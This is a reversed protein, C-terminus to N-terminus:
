PSSMAGIISQWPVLKFNNKSDGNNADQTVFAGQPFAEGLPVGTVDIGDTHTVEDIGNGAVIEFTMVYDNDRARQYVVYEDEGQSSAILYGEGGRGYYIALGEVEVELPTDSDVTDVLTGEPKATPEAGFKWIGRTEESLYLQALGDDVVCGEVKSEVKLTRVWRVDVKGGGSGFLEWQDVNGSKDTVFVYFKDDVSSHYMCLGYDETHVGRATVDELLRTAPNVRYISVGEQTRNSAAVLATPQGDLPFDYRLDVGNIDGDPLHQLQRGTLDYVVLGADKTTGIITSLSPDTPHVWIALDDADGGAPVPATEVTATVARVGTPAESIATVTVTDSRQEEGDSVTLNLRYEGGVGPVFSASVTDPSDLVVTSGEPEAEVSWRYSLTDGDPDSSGEGDLVVTEGVRVTQPQAKAEAVPTRNEAEPDVTITVDDHASHEGNDATLRLIYVGATSFSATTNVANVAGFTVVGPGQQKSWTVTLRSQQLNGDDVTGDLETLESIAITQEEGAEVVLTSNSANQNTNCAILAMPLLLVVLLIAHHLHLHVPTM